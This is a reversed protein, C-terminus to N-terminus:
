AGGALDASSAISAGGGAASARGDGLFKEVAPFHDAWTPAVYNALRHMQAKRRTSPREAYDDIARIWGPGDLCDLYDPADGGVERLAEGDSCIAPVGLALAEVLPIGFGEIFSPFLLARAGALLRTMERDELKQREFVVRNMMASRELLDIINENEWGRRGVIHLHPIEEPSRTEYFRRWIHLLLLQNKRPEITGITVFYPHAAEVNNDSADAVDVGLQAVVGPPRRAGWRTLLAETRRRTDQSNYIIGDAGQALDRVSREFPRVTGPRAFEPFELPIVDHLMAVIRDCGGERLAGFVRAGLNQHSVNLYTRKPGGVRALAAPVDRLTAARAIARRRVLTQAGKADASRRFSMFARFDQRPMSADGDIAAALEAAGEGDLIYTGCSMTCLFLPPTDGPGATAALSWDLYARMVRDIGSPTPMRARAVLRSLDLLVPSNM